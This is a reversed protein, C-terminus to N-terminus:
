PRQEEKGKHHDPLTYKGEKILKDRQELITKLRAAQCLASLAPASADCPRLLCHFM